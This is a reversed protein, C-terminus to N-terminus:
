KTTGEYFDIMDGEALQVFAKKTTSTRGKSMGKKTNRFKPKGLITATRVTVVSITPYMRQVAEKIELKNADVDVHFVYVGKENLASTKETILPKKLIVKM